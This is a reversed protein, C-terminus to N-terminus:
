KSLSNAIADWAAEAGTKGAVYGAAGAPVAAIGGTVLAVPGTFFAGGAAYGAAFGAIAGSVAGCVGWITTVVGKVDGGECLILETITLEEFNANM